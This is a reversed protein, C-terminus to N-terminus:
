QERTIHRGFLRDRLAEDPRVMGARGRGHCGPCSQDDGWCLGCAGLAAALESLRRASAQHAGHLRRAIGTVRTLKMEAADLRASLDEIVANREDLEPDDEAVAARPPNLFQLMMAMRPDSAALERLMAQPDAGDEGASFGAMAEAAELMTM